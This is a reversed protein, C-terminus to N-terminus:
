PNGEFTLNKRRYAAPSLELSRRIKSGELDQTEKITDQVGTKIGGM